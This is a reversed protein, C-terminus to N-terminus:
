WSDSMIMRVIRSIKLESISVMQISSGWAKSRARSNRLTTMGRKTSTTRVRDGTKM